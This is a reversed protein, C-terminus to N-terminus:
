TEDDITLAKKIVLAKEDVHIELVPHAPDSYDNGFIAWSAQPKGDPQIANLEAVLARLRPILEAVEGIPAHTTIKIAISM